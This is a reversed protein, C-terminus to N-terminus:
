RREPNIDVGLILERQALLNVIDQRTGQLTLTGEDIQAILELKNILAETDVPRRIKLARSAYRHSNAQKVGM